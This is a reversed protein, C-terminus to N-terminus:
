QGVLTQLIQLSLRKNLGMNKLFSKLVMYIASQVKKGGVQVSKDFEPLLDKQRETLNVPTEGIVRCILDGM